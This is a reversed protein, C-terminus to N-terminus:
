KGGRVRTLEHNFIDYRYEYNDGIDWTILTGKRVGGTWQSILPDVWSHGAISSNLMAPRMQKGNIEVPQGDTQLETADERSKILSLGDVLIDRKSKSKTQASVQYQVKKGEDVEELIASLSIESRQPNLVPDFESVVRKIDSLTRVEVPKLMDPNLKKQNRLHVKDLAEM